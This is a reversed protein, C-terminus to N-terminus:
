TKDHLLQSPFRRYRSELQLVLLRRGDLGEHRSHQLHDHTTSHAASINGVVGNIVM